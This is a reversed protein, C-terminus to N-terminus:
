APLSELLARPFDSITQRLFRRFDLPSIQHASFGNLNVRSGAPSIQIIHRSERQRPIPFPAQILYVFGFLNTGM